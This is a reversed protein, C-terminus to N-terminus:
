IEKGKRKQKEPIKGKSNKSNKARKQKTTTCLKQATSARFKAKKGSVKPLGQLLYLEWQRGRGRAREWSPSPSSSHMVENKIANTKFRSKRKASLTKHSSKIAMKLYLCVCLSLCRCVCLFVQM